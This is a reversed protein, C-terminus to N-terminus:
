KILEQVTLFFPTIQVRFVVNIKNSKCSFIIFKREFSFCKTGISLLIKTNENIIEKEFANM